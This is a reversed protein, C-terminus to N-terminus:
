KSVKRKSSEGISRARIRPGTRTDRGFDEPKPPMNTGSPTAFASLSMATRKLDAAKDALIRNDQRSATRVLDSISNIVKSIIDKVEEDSVFETSRKDKGLLRDLFGEDIEGEQQMTALEEQIIKQLKEKTVKM